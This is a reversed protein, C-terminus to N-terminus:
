KQYLSIYVTNTDEGLRNSKELIGEINAWALSSFAALRLLAGM